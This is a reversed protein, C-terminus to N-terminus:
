QKLPPNLLEWNPTLKEPTFVWGRRNGHIRSLIQEDVTKINKEM